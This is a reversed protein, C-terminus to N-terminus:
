WRTPAPGCQGCWGRARSGSAAGPARTTSSPAADDVANGDADRVTASLQVTEGVELTLEAPTVEITLAAAADPQQSGGLVAGALGAAVALAVGRAPWGAAGFDGGGLSKRIM